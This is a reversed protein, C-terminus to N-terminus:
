CLDASMATIGMRTENGDAPSTPMPGPVPARRVQREVECTICQMRQLMAVGELENGKAAIDAIDFTIVSGFLGM